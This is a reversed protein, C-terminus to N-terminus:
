ARKMAVCPAESNEALVRSGGCAASKKNVMVPSAVRAAAKLGGCLGLRLYPAILAACQAMQVADARCTGEGPSLPSLACAEIRARTRTLPAGGPRLACCASRMAGNACRRRPVHGRGAILPSLACSEIRVRTRTLPAGGAAKERKLRGRV